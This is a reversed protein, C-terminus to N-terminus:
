PALNDISAYNKEHVGHPTNANHPMLDSLNSQNVNSRRMRSTENLDSNNVPIGVGDEDKVFIPPVGFHEMDKRSNTNM